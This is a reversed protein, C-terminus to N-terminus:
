FLARAGILFAAMLFIFLVHVLWGVVATEIARWTEFDLAQRIAIIGTVLVWVSAGFAIAGGVFPVFAFLRFIGPSNAFGLTRLM